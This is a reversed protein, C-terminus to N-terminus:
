SRGKRASRKRPFTIGETTLSVGLVHPGSESLSLLSVSAPAISMRQYLDIHIGLYHAIVLRIVDAHSVCCVAGKPVEEAIREIEGLARVQVERITEGDPFRVASPWTRVKAWLKTKAVSGLPRDVWRGYDVDALAPRVDVSTEHEKAIARATQLARRIPSAYIADFPAESLAGALASAQSRGAESLPVEPAPLRKGTVDTVAHRVLFFVTM